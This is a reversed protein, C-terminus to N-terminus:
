SIVGFLYVFTFLFIWIIDLFHWFISLCILRTRIIKNIGFKIVQVFLLIIWMLGFIVHFGHLWLLLYFSSLFGSKSPLYNKKFLNLFENRELLIFFLGSLFVLLLFLCVMKVNSKKLFYISISFLLSSLLLIFTELFVIKLNFFDKGSPGNAVNNVMIFYVSFVTAFIICDSMIYIWFGFISKRDIDINQKKKYFFKKFFECIM